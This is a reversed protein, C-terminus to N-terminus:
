SKKFEIGALQKPYVVFSSDKGVIKIEGEADNISFDFFDKQIVVENGVIDMTKICMANEIVIPNKRRDKLYIEASIM